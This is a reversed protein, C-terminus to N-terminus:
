KAEGKAKHNDVFVDKCGDRLMEAAERGAMIHAM